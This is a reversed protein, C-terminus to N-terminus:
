DQSHSLLLIVICHITSYLGLYLASTWWKKPLLSVELKLHEICVLLVHWFYFLHSLFSWVPTGQHSLLNLVQYRWQQPVSEIGPRPVEVYWPHPLFLFCFVFFCVFLFFFLLLLELCLKNHYLGPSLLSWYICTIDSSLVLYCDECGGEHDWGSKQSVWEEM